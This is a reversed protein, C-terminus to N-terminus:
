ERSYVDTIKEPGTYRYMAAYKNSIDQSDDHVACGFFNPPKPAPLSVSQGNLSAVISTMRPRDIANEQICLLGIQICKLVEEKVFTDGLETDILNLAEGENWLRWARHLLAEDMHLKGFFRNRQGSLVELVIVGFSYVDSKASYHGTIAYEPAMYGYTGVIRRTDGQTQDVGFLRALGFDAIKPNMAEDLLINSSKLDRHVVKIRSDEHLYLLGRAIGNIIKYRTQWNLYSKRVPDCFFKDLSSNPLFEYILLNEKPAACYGLLKVLNKHQLRAVLVIETEFEAIGQVSNKSLRKVAIEQGGELKGKYVEGFGGEGLKNCAVFNNTALRIIDLDYQLSDEFRRTEDTQVNNNRQMAKKTCIFICVGLVMAAPFAAILSTRLKRKSNKSHSSLITTPSTGQEPLTLSAAPTSVLRAMDPSPCFTINYSSAKSANCMFVSTADDLTYSYARPCARKFILSSMSFDSRHCDTISNCCYKRTNFVKCPNRCGIISTTNANSTTKSLVTLGAPCLRKLDYVCGTVSCDIGTEVHPAVMLPLNYGFTVSVDYFDIDYVQGLGFEVFTAPYVFPRNCLIKETFCDGTQCSFNGTSEDTSCLTRGWIRGRWDTPVDVNRSEGEQLAFGSNNNLSLESFSLIAPWVAYNCNNVITLTKTKGTVYLLQIRTILIILSLCLRFTAM